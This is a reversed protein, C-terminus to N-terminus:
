RDNNVVELVAEIADEFASYPQVGVVVEMVKISEREPETPGVAFVPTLTVGGKQGEDVDRQIMAAHAGSTLCYRFVDPDLDITRAYDILNDTGLASQNTFLLDHMEWYRGQDGACAAAEHAKFAQPHAALDPLNKFVYRVTGPQVFVEEIKPYTETVYRASLQSQFDSFAVMTVPANPQGRSALGAISIETPPPEGGPYEAPALFDNLAARLEAVEQKLAANETRLEDVTRKLDQVEGTQASASPGIATALCLAIAAMWSWRVAVMMPFVPVTGNSLESVGFAPLFGRWRIVSMSMEM